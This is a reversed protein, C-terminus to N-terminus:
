IVERAWYPKSRRTWKLMKGKEGLYYLRYSEVPCDKKYQEPMVLPPYSFGVDPLVDICREIMYYWERWKDECAHVKGYRYTYEECLFIFLSELYNLNQKSKRAWVTCPHNIHTPKYPSSFGKVHLTTNLIQFYELIQKVVHKDCHYNACSEINHDLYFINM